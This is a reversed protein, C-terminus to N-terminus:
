QGKLIREIEEDFSGQPLPTASAGASTANAGAGKGYLPALTRTLDTRAETFLGQMVRNVDAHNRDQMCQISTAGCGDYMAPTNKGSYTVEKEWILRKDARQLARLSLAFENPLAWSATVTAKKLTGEIYFDEDMLKSQGYVFRVSKFDGSSAMDDAFAKAWLDPTLSTVQGGINAKALNYYLSEPNFISGRKTFDETGDKFSFVAVSIPLKLGDTVPAGPKYVFSTNISCGAMLVLLVAIFLFIWRRSRNIM